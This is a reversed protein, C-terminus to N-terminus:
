KRILRSVGWAGIGFIGIGIVLSGIGGRSSPPGISFSYLDTSDATASNSFWTETMERNISKTFTKVNAGDIYFQIQTSNWNLTYTHPGPTLAITATDNVTDTPGSKAICTINNGSRQWPFWAVIASDSTSVYRTDVIPGAHWGMSFFNGTAINPFVGLRFTMTVPAYSGNVYQNSQSRSVLSASGYNLIRIKAGNVVSDRVIGPYKYEDFIKCNYNYSFQSLQCTPNDVGLSRYIHWYGQNLDLFQSYMNISSGGVNIDTSKWSSFTNDTVAIAHDAMSM